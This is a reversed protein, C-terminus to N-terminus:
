TRLEYVRTPDVHRGAPLATYRRDQQHRGRGLGVRPVGRAQLERFTHLLLAQGLGRRRYAKRVSLAGIWGMRADLDDREQSNIQGAIEDGDLALFWLEPKLKVAGFRYKKWREFAEAFPREVYGWHERFADEEAIFAAELDEPYRLTRVHLGAPWEPEPISRDLDTIMQWFYHCATMGMSEFLEISPRHGSPAEAQVALRADAPLRDLARLSTTLAWGLMASGIGRGQWQPHVRGWVYPRVPPDRHDWLEVCGVICEDPAMVVRVSAEVDIGTQRWHDGYREVTCDGAGTLQFETVNFLAVIQPLDAYTAPRVQYGAAALQGFSEEM